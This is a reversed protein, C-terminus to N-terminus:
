LSVQLRKISRVMGDHWQPNPECEFQPFARLLRGLAAPAEIRALGAGLCHHMGYGFSVHKNPSRRIDVRDPDSFQAGDRNAAGLLLVITQGEKLRADAFEIDSSVVRLIRHFPPQVRLFEEVASPMLEPHLILDDRLGPHTGILWLSSALLSTTTEHGGILLTVCTSLLEEETLKDGSERANVLISIVDEGPQRRREEFVSTFYARLELLAAQSRRMAELPPNPSAMFEVIRVSWEKFQERMAHPIGLMEAIVTVPLQFAFEAVFDTTGLYRLRAILDTCIEDVRPRLRELTRPLFAQQILKRLRTHDPPDSNILGASYHDALPKLEGSAETPFTRKLHNVVRGRNSFELPRRLIEAADAYKFFVPANWAECFVHRGGAGHLAQYISFPNKQFTGDDFASDLISTNAM